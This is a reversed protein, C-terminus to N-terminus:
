ADLELMDGGSRQGITAGLGVRGGIGGPGFVEVRRDVGGPEPAQLVKVGRVFGTGQETVSGGGLADGLREVADELSVSV